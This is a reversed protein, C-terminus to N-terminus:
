NPRAMLLSTPAVWRSSTPAPTTDRQTLKLAALTRAVVEDVDVVIAGSTHQRFVAILPVNTVASIIPGFRGDDKNAVLVTCGSEFLHGPRRHVYDPNSRWDAPKEGGQDTFLAALNGARQAAVGLRMLAATLAIQYVRRLTLLPEHGVGKAPRDNDRLLIIAPECGLWDKLTTSRIAAATCADATTFCSADLGIM